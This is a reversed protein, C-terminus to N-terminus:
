KRIKGNIKQLYRATPENKRATPCFVRKKGKKPNEKEPKPKQPIKPM